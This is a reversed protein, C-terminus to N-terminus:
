IQIRSFLYAGAILLISTLIGLVALDTSLGYHTVGTLTDRLGDIGFSLPNIRAIIQLFPPASQIPFLAGSLFFLPMVLFNM